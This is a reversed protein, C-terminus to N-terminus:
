AVQGYFLSLDAKDWEFFAAAVVVFFMATNVCQSVCAITLWLVENIGCVCELWYVCCSSHFLKTRQKAKAATPIKCKKKNQQNFKTSNNICLVVCFFKNIKLFWCAFRITKMNVLSPFHCFHWFVVVLLCQCVMSTENNESFECVDFLVCPVACVALACRHTHTHTNTHKQTKVIYVSQVKEAQDWDINTCSDRIYVCSYVFHVFFM